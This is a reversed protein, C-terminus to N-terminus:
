SYSEMTMVGNNYLLTKVSTYLSRIYRGRPGKLFDQKAATYSKATDVAFEIIFWTVINGLWFYVARMFKNNVQQLQTIEVLNWELNRIRNTPQNYKLRLLWEQLLNMFDCFFVEHLDSFVYKYLYKRPRLKPNRNDKQSFELQKTKLWSEINEKVPNWPSFM